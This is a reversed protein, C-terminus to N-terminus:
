GPGARAGYLDHMARNKWYAQQTDPANYLVTRVYAATDQIQTTNNGLCFLAYDINSKDLKLFKAKVLSQPKEERAIRITEKKSTVIDLIINVIGDIQGADEPHDLLLTEYDINKCIIDHYKSYIEEQTKGLAQPMIHNVNESHFSHNNYEKKNQKNLIKNSDDFDTDRKVTDRKKHCPSVETNELGKEERDVDNVDHSLEADEEGIVTDWNKHCPSIGTSELCNEDLEANQTDCFSEKQGEEGTIESDSQPSEFIVYETNAFKGYDGRSQERIIYGAGILENVINGITNVSEKNIAALGRLTYDWDEPLSLIQSLLGKAKLSLKRNQLHHNSMVTFNSQKEVRFVAM